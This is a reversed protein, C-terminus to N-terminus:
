DSNVVKYCPYIDQDTNQSLIKAVTRPHICFLQALFNYSVVKGSPILRLFEYIYYKM